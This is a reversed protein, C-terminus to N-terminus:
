SSSTMVMDSVFTPVARFVCGDADSRSTCPGQLLNFLGQVAKLEAMYGDDDLVTDNNLHLAHLLLSKLPCCRFILCVM